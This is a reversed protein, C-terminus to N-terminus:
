AAATMADARVLYPEWADVSVQSRPEAMAGWLERADFVVTYLWEPRDDFGPQDRYQAHRDAFVHAGHVRQVTGVHGHVYRPLRTHGTAPQAVARVHDGLAFQAPAVMARSTTAGRALTGDVDPARLVRAAANPVVSAHGALLESDSVLGRELLLRELALIWIRYYSSSLYTAAPLSERAHRSMDINWQGTAGMALTLGLARREWEAHFLPEEQEALVPGFGSQGGMDHAGSM